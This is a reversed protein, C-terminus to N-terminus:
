AWDNNGYKDIKDLGTAFFKFIPEISKEDEVCERYDYRGDANREALYFRVADLTGEAESIYRLASVMDPNHTAIVFRTGLAKNILIILRAYEVIWDQSLCADPADLVVLSDGDWADHQLAIQLLGFVGVGSSCHFSEYTGRCPDDSSFFVDSAYPEDKVFFYGGIIRKIENLIEAAKNEAIGWRGKRIHM